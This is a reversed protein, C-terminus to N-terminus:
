FSGDTYFSKPIYDFLGTSVFKTYSKPNLNESLITQNLFTNKSREQYFWINLAHDIERFDSGKFVKRWSSHPNEERHKSLSDPKTRVLQYVTSAVINYDAAVKKHSFGLGIKQIIEKYYKPIRNKIRAQRQKILEDRTRENRSTIIFTFNHVTSNQAKVIKDFVLQSLILKQLKRINILKIKEPILYQFTNINKFHLM